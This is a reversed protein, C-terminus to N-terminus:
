SGDARTGRIIRPGPIWGWRSEVHVWRGYHSPAFGWPAEDVWTWGYPDQWVWRGDRYPAWDADVRSPFWANGYNPVSRWSGYEDLDAYGVVDDSVYRLSASRDLRQDRERVYSDFRDARPLGYMEYDRLDNGHFRVTDGARLAFRSNDGYAQGAGEWVVVTTEGDRPDVDIRYRGIRDIVFALNPTAVEYSQGPYLRRVRVNITGQTVQVQALRDNLELFEFSTDSGLRFAASGVQLEARAGRDTWLRDGRALPRNRMAGFWEDEGAPSYSVEGQTHNLHAVRGSPDAYAASAVPIAGVCILLLAGLALLRPTNSMHTNGLDPSADMANSAM